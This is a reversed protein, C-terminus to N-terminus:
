DGPPLHLSKDSKISQCLEDLANPVNCRIKTLTGENIPLQRSDKALTEAKELAEGLERGPGGGLSQLAAVAVELRQGVVATHTLPAVTGAPMSQREITGSEVLTVNALETLLDAIRGVETLRQLVREYAFAREREEMEREHAAETAQLLQTQQRMEEAHADRAEKRGGKAETVTQRAFRVTVLAAIAAVASGISGVTSLVDADDREVGNGFM